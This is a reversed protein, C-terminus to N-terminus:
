IGDAVAPFSVEINDHFCKISMWWFSVKLLSFITQPRTHNTVVTFDIYKETPTFFNFNLEFNPVCENETFENM